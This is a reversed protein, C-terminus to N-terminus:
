PAARLVRAPEPHRQRRRRGVRVPLWGPRVALMGGNHNEWPKVITLLIRETYPDALDPDTAHRRFESIHIDGNGVTSNYFVYFLGSTVYDPSFAISLLGPESSLKIKDRLDLFPRELVEGDKVIRVTGVQDVVFIRSADGPPATVLVPREFKGIRTLSVVKSTDVPPPPETSPRAPKTSVGFVGKMGLRAHGPVSCFFRFTGKKPFPVTITQRQGPRLVRTRKKSGIVFDHLAAGDNRVVFRVTSGAPVSRRSLTFSFDRANVSVTYTRSPVSLAAGALALGALAAAAFLVLPRVFTASGRVAELSSM